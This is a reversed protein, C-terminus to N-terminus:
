AYSARFSDLPLAARLERAQAGDLTAFTYPGDRRARDEAYPNAMVSMGHYAANPDAGARDVAVVFSQTEHARARVLANLIEPKNQGTVWNCPVLILDTGKCRRYAEFLRPFRLDMCIALGCRWGAVTFV